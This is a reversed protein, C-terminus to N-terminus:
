HVCLSKFKKWLFCVNKIWGTKFVTFKWTLAPRILYMNRSTVTIQFYNVSKYPIKTFFFFGSRTKILGTLDSPASAEGGVVSLATAHCNAEGQCWDPWQNHCLPNILAWPPRCSCGSTVSLNGEEAAQPLSAWNRCLLDSVELGWGVLM